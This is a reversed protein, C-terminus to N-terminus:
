VSPAHEADRQEAERRSIRGRLNAYCHAWDAGRAIEFGDIEVVCARTGNDRALRAGVRAGSYLARAFAVCRSRSMGVSHM